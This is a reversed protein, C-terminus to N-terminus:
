GCASLIAVALVAEMLAWHSSAGHPPDPCHLLLICAPTAEQARFEGGQGGAAQGQMESHTLPGTSLTPSGLHVSPLWLGGSVSLCCFRSVVGRHRLCPLQPGPPRPNNALLYHVKLVGEGVQALIPVTQREPTMM